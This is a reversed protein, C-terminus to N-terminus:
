SDCHATENLQCALVRGEADILLTNICANGQPLQFWEEISHNLFQGILPKAIGAHCVLALTKASSQLVKQKLTQARIVLEPKSEAGRAVFTEGSREAQQEAQILETIPRGEFEGFSCETLLPEIEIPCDHHAHIYRATAKARQLPSSWIADFQEGKLALAACHAQKHGTKNLETDLQGQMLRQRNFDTEGHRVIILKKM